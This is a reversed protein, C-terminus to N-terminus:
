LNALKKIEIAPNGAFITNEPVDTVVVSGAAIISNNGINVGKMIFSDLGIWVNEGIIIPSSKVNTRSEKIKGLIIEWDRQRQISNIPHSNNDFIKVGSSILTNQGIIIKEACSIISDDGIYVNNNIELKAIGTDEIRIIGRIYVDGNFIMNESKYNANICFANLGLYLNGNITSNKEFSNFARILKKRQNTLLGCKTLIRQILNSVPKSYVGCNQWASFENLPM